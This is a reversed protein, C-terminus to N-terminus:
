EGLHSWSKGLKISSITKESVNYIKAIKRQKLKRTKLLKKIEKVDEETLKAMGHLIGKQHAITGYKIIDKRNESPFDWRLNNLQNNSKNNDLHRCEMGEPCPGIFTELVLRHVLFTKPIKNKWLTIQLYGDRKLNLKLIKEHWNRPRSFSKIQGFDSIEYLGEYNIVPKWIEM